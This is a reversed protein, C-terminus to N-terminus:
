CIMHPGLWSMLRNWVLAAWARSTAPSRRHRVQLSTSFSARPHCCPPRCMHSLLRHLLPRCLKGVSLAVQLRFRRQTQPRRPRLRTLPPLRVPRICMRVLQGRFRLCRRFLLRLLLSRETRPRVMISPLTLNVVPNATPCRFRVAMSSVAIKRPANASLLGCVRRKVASPGFGLPISVRRLRTLHPRPKAKQSLLLTPSLRATHPTLPLGPRMLALHGNATVREAALPVRPLNPHAPVPRCFILWRAGAFPLRTSHTQSAGGTIESSSPSPFGCPATLM